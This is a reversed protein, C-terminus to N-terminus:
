QEQPNQFHKKNENVTEKTFFNKKTKIHFKRRLKM